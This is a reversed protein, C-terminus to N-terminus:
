IESQKWQSRVFRNGAKLWTRVIAQNFRADEEYADIEEYKRLTEIIFPTYGEKIRQKLFQIKETTSKDTFVM